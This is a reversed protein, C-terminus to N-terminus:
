FSFMKEILDAWSIPRIPISRLTTHYAGYEKIFKSLKENAENYAKDAAGFAEEVEKARASRQEQLAKRKDAKEKEKAAREREKQALEKEAAELQEVDDYIRQTKESYYKM